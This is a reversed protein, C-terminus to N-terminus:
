AAYQVDGEQRATVTADGAALLVLTDGRVQAVGNDGCSYSVPLGSTATATLAVRGEGLRHDLEQTWTISQPEPAEIHFTRSVPRAPEYQPNGNQRATVTVDGATVLVLTDGSMYAVSNNNSRYGVPLGSTSTATLAVRGEGLWHTLGQQWAITQPTRNEYHVYPRMFATDVYKAVYAQSNGTSRLTIDGFTADEHLTGTLYVASDLIHIQKTLNKPHGANYNEIMLEHGDYDWVAFAIDSNATPILITDAFALEQYRVQAFVRNNRAATHTMELYPGSRPPRAFGYSLLNLSDMDLRLWYATHRIPIPITDGRYLFNPHGTIWGVEGQVFISNSEYDFYIGNDADNGMQIVSSVDNDDPTPQITNIARLETNYIVICPNINGSHARMFLSDSNNIYVRQSLRDEIYVSAYVNNNRDTNLSVCKSQVNIINRYTSDFMYVGGILSDFHPSFKLLQQNWRPSPMDLHYILSRRGDVMIKLASISGDQVSLSYTSDRSPRIDVHDNALRIVCINGNPDITFTEHSLKYSFLAEGNTVPEFQRRFGYTITNENSDIYGLELVHQELVNGDIDFTIFFNSVESCYTSNRSTLYGSDSSTLLTDLYYLFGDSRWYHMMSIGCMVMFATDGMKSLSYAWSDSYSAYIPKHWVLQGEPSIKAIVVAQNNYRSQYVGQPLLDVGFIRGRPSINGLIYTNGQTDVFSGKTENTNDGLDSGSYAKVWEFGQGHAIIGVFVLLITLLCGKINKM